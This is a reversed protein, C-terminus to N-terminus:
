KIHDAFFRGIFESGEPSLHVADYFYVNRLDNPDVEFIEFGIRELANKYQLDYNKIIKASNIGSLLEGETNHLFQRFDYLGSTKSNLFSNPEMFIILNKLNYEHSILMDRLNKGQDTVFNYYKLINNNNEWDFQPSKNTKNFRSVAYCCGKRLGLEYPPLATNSISVKSYPKRLSKKIKFLSNSIGPFIARFSSKVVEKKSEKLENSNLKAFQGLTNANNAVIIMRPMGINRLIFEISRICGVLTKASKGANVAPIKSISSFVDPFRRGEQVAVSETTSGGCFVVSESIRNKNSNLSSPELTGFEDTKFKIYKEEQYDPYLTKITNITELGPTQFGFKWTDPHPRLIHTVKNYIYGKSFRFQSFLELSVLPILIYASFLLFYKKIKM